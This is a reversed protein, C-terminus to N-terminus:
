FLYVAGANAVSDDGQDGASGTAASDEYPAGVVIVGGDDSLGVSRGFWDDVDPNPAKLYARKSWEGDLDSTYVHVAGSDELGVETPSGGVGTSAGTEMFEGVALVRGDGSLALGLSFHQAYGPAPSKLYATQTWDGNVREFVYGAGASDVSNDEQDAGIGPEASDEHSASAALTSGDGSLVVIGGFRDGAGPNSAKLYATETWQTGSREFVYVAGAKYLDNNSSDGNVGSSGGDEHYASAVLLNGNDSLAIAGGFRDWAEANSSKLYGQETWEEGDRVFVYVAGSEPSDDSQGPVNIGQGPGGEFVSGVALTKGDGALAVVCTRDDVGANSAKVIARETWGERDRGFVYVAGSNEAVLDDGCAGVVLTSGDDSIDVGGFGGEMSPVGGFGGEVSPSSPKIYAEQVWEEGVREFVYVAGADSFSNSGQDANVGAGGGDEGPAGIVMTNGDGSIAVSAGFVDGANTNSAKIYGIAEALNGSVQVPESHTCGLENCAALVYRAETRLALPVTMEFMQGTLEAGVLSPETSETVQEYIEYYDAGEVAEWQFRFRKPSAVSWALIAAEPPSSPGEETETTSSETETSEDTEQSGSETSDTDTGRAEEEGWLRDNGVGQTCGAFAFLTTSMFIITNSHTTAM